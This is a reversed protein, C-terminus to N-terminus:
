VNINQPTSVDVDELTFVVGNGGVKENILSIRALIEELVEKPASGPDITVELTPNSDDFTYSVINKVKKFAELFEDRYSSSLIFTKRNKDEM